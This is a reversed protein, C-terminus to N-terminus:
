SAVSLAPSIFVAGLLEAGATDGRSTISGSPSLIPLCSVGFSQAVPCLCVNGGTEWMDLELLKFIETTTGM